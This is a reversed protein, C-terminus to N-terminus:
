ASPRVGLRAPWLMVEGRQETHLATETFSNISAARAFLRELVAAFMVVSAGQFAREDCTLQVRRGRAFALGKAQPLRRVVASTTIARVGDIQHQTTPDAQHSYLRLMEKLAVAGEIDDTFSLHNLSLHSILQWATNGWARSPRPPTPGVLCRVSDVPAGTDLLFDTVEGSLDTARGRHIALHLPLARNSCLTEVALQKVDSNFAGDHGDVTSLYVEGGQYGSHNPDAGQTPRRSITYFASESDAPRAATSSYLPLFERATASGHGMVRQVSHVEYDLPRGRDAVVHYDATRDSLHIRDASKKFLNVAPTCYLALQTPVISEQIVPDYRDLLLVVELEGGECRAVGEGLGQLEVFSFRRPLAFYEQLLRYGQFSRSGCPLMSDSDAFGPTSIADRTVLSQQSSEPKRVVMGVTGAVILELLQPSHVFLPLQELALENFQAGDVTVLRLRLAGQVKRHTRKELLDVDRLDSVHATHELRQLEVPWLTVEQATRFSCRTQDQETLQSRLSSHRPITVGRRLNGGAPNPQIQVVAMSPTPALYHPYIMELLHQAFHPYEADLKLQVRAALFAFGELLREVYPDPCPIKNLDLRGAIKPYEKAFDLGLQQLYRLEQDYYDLM